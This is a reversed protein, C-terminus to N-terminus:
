HNRRNRHTKQKRQVGKRHKRQKRLTRKKRAGGSPTAPGVSTAGSAASAALAPSAVAMGIRSASPATAKAANKEEPTQPIFVGTANHRRLPSQLSSQRPAKPPTKYSNSHSM